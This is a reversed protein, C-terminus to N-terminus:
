SNERNSRKQKKKEEKSRQCPDCTHTNTPQAKKGKRVRMKQRRQVKDRRYIFFSVFVFVAVFVSLNLSYSEILIATTADEDKKQAKKIRKRIEKEWPFSHSPSFKGGM